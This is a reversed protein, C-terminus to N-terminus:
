QLEVFHLVHFFVKYFWGQEEEGVQDQVGRRTDHLYISKVDINPYFTDKNFLIACGAFHTAHYREHLIEYEVYESTEQLTIIHWKGAIQKEIADEKGRRPGPNWNYISLRKQVLSQSSFYKNVGYSQSSSSQIRSIMIARLTLILKKAVAKKKSYINSNHLSLVTFFKQGSLPPRRFSARSLVGPLEWGQEGEMVQDPLERRTDHLYISKVDVNPYFTDLNFLVACGAYHTVHFRNTLLEHDVYDSAEQLTIIHWRGAFQKEFADEKGRRPGPNWNYISLRREVVSRTVFHKNSSNKHSSTAPKRESAEGFDAPAKEIDVMHQVQIEHESLKSGRLLSIQEQPTLNKAVACSKIM